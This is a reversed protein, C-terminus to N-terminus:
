LLLRKILITGGLFVVSNTTDSYVYVIIREGSQLYCLGSANFYIPESATYRSTYGQALPGGTSTGFVYIYRFTGDPSSDTLGNVTIIYWGEVGIKVYPSDPSIDASEYPTTSIPWAEFGGTFALKQDDLPGRWYSPVGYNLTNVNLVDTSITSASITTSNITPCTITSATLNTSSITPSTMTVTQLSTCQVSPCGLTGVLVVAGTDSIKLYNILTLPQDATSPSNTSMSIIYDGSTTHKVFGGRGPAINKWQSTKSDFYANYTFASNPGDFGSEGSKIQLLQTSNTNIGSSGVHFLSSGFKGIVSGDVSMDVTSTTTSYSLESTTSPTFRYSPAKVPPTSESESPSLRFRKSGSTTFALTGTSEKYMGTTKEDSFSHAPLSVTGDDTYVYDLELGGAKIDGSVILDGGVTADSDVTLSKVHSGPYEGNFNM